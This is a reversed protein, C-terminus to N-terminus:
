DEGDTRKILINNEADRDEFELGFYKAANVLALEDPSSANYSIEGKKEEVIITHCAALIEMFEEIQKYEKCNKDNWLPWFM